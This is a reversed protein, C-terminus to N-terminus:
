LDPHGTVGNAFVLPCAPHLFNGPKNIEAKQDKFNSLTWLCNCSSNPINYEIHITNIKVHVTIVRIKRCKEFKLSKRM